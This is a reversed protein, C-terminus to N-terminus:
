PRRTSEDGCLEISAGCCAGAEALGPAGGRAAAHGRLGRLIRRSGARGAAAHGRPRPLRRGGGGGRAPGAHCEFTRGQALEQKIEVRRPAARLTTRGAAVQFRNRVLEVPALVLANAGGAVGGAAFVEHAALPRAPDGGAGEAKKPRRSHTGKGKPADDKGRLEANESKLRAIEERLRDEESKASPLGSPIGYAVPLPQGPYYQSPAGHDM